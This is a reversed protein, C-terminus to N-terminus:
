AEAIEASRGRHREYIDLVWRFGPRQEVSARLAVLEPPTPQPLPYSFQPPRVIATMIAAATLDAVSFRDGVLYGSPGIEAELRDFYGALREHALRLGESDVGMNRRMAVRLLPFMCLWAARTLVGFGDTAMRAAALPHPFYTSWFLRRLDPAVQNDYFEALELARARENPDSPFLPPDPRLREIEALIRSSDAVFQGDIELVPVKTQGTAGRVTPIHFAPVLSRRIHPWQKYDLAWRIKENYHSVRFQLLRPPTPGPMHEHLVPDGSRALV